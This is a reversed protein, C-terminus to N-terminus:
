RPPGLALAAAQVTEAALVAWCAGILGAGPIWWLAAVVLTVLALALARAVEGERRAAVLAVSRHTAITYPVLSWALIRLADAAPAFGPGFLLAVLPESLVTLAAAAAAALVLLSPLSRPAADAGPADASEAFAPYLAGFAAVHATKSAEVARLGASFHGTPTAGALSAILLVGGRQYLMGLAGLLAIPASRVVLARLGPRPDGVLARLDVRAGACSLLALAAAAAQTVVILVAVDVVSGREPVLTWAALLQIAAVALTLLAYTGM